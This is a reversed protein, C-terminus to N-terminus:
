LLVQRWRHDQGNNSQLERHKVRGDLLSEGSTPSSSALVSPWSSFCRRRTAGEGVVGAAEEVPTAEKIGVELVLAAM